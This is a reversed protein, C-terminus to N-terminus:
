FNSCDQALTISNCIKGQVSNASIANSSFINCVTYVTIASTDYDYYRGLVIHVPVKATHVTYLVASNSPVLTTLVTYKVLHIM